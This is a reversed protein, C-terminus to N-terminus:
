NQVNFLARWTSDLPKREQDIGYIPAIWLLHEHRVYKEKLLLFTKSDESLHNWQMAGSTVCRFLRAWLEMNQDFDQNFNQYYRTKM